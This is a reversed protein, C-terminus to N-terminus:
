IWVTTSCNCTLINTMKRWSVQELHSNALFCKEYDGNCM